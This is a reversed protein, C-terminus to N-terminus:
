DKGSFRKLFSYVYCGACFGFVSELFSFLILIGDIYYSLSILGLMNVIFLIDAIAFGIQAAFIKPAQDIPRNKIHFKKILWGSLISTPSYKGFKFARLFFDGLLFDPIIWYPIFLYAISLLCVQLAILRVKNENISINDIPCSIEKTM